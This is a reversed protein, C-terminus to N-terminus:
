NLYKDRELHYIYMTYLPPKRAYNIIKIKHKLRYLNRRM